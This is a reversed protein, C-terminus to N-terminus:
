ARGIKELVILVAKDGHGKVYDMLEQAVVTVLNEVRLRDVEAKFGGTVWIEELVTAIVIGKRKTIRVFERLAPDPGVHGSTFTGVCTVIDYTDDAKGIRQALDGQALSRYVGTQDAVVLMAPSLDYGDIVEAGAFALAQGVLGTGCGADLIVSKAPNDSAKVAAQAVLVPAVYEQAKDGVEDNYTAAWKDYIAMCDQVNLSSRAQTLYLNSHKIQNSM